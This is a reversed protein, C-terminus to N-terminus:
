ISVHIFDSIHVYWITSVKPPRQAKKSQDGVWEKRKQNWAIEAAHYYSYVQSYELFLILVPSCKISFFDIVLFLRVNTLM